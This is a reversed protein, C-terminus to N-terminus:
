AEIWAKQVIRSNCLDFMGHPTHGKVKVDHVDLWDKFLPILAGGQEHLMRQMEWIYTKRKAQDTTAKADALLKDFAEVKWHTDNWPASSQYAVALMQTAAPRGGWYSTMFPAKLWVNEWFGDAPERRVTVNIGAAAATAQFLVSMDIAGNFAADSASLIVDKPGLGAKNAHFAAKEPDYERQPLENNHYPDSEPIPHDNGRRAFKGFLMQVLKERNMSYKLALRVDPNDYPAKDCMMPMIFHYGAAAQVLEFNGAAEIQDVLPVVVRHTVDVEGALLAQMRAADDNIVSLEASELNCRGEKWYGGRNTLIARVGPEFNELKYGGTGIPNSWDTFDKPVVLVHYDSLVYPLDADPAELAIKVQHTDMKVVDKIPRMPGAAGSTSDGRHLNISYIVDDADLTKGNSFTIGKRVNCVWETADDSPELTEFLEPQIQNKADVEVLGDYISTSINIMTTDTYTRIDLSDTTSGGAIGVRLHGGKVPTQAFGAKALVGSAISTAVGLAAARRMFERRSVRGNTVARQLEDWQNM